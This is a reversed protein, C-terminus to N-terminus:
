SLWPKLLGNHSTLLVVPPIINRVRYISSMGRTPFLKSIILAVLYHSDATKAIFPMVLALYTRAHFYNLVLTVWSRSVPLNDLPDHMVKM